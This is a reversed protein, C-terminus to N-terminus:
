ANKLVENILKITNENDAKFCDAKGDGAKVSEMVTIFDAVAEELGDNMIVYDYKVAKAIEGSAEACRKEIVDEAETGRKNLRRKLEKVSPPLVFLLVSEPFAEKVQFAGQTEIELIVDRGGNLNRMAPEKPTGYYHGVFGAHELFEGNSIMSEFVGDDVFRYHVGDVEGERPKRTTCSVSYYPNKDKFVESLITGKGCGSPASVVFLKANNKFLRM